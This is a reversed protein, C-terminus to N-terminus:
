KLGWLEYPNTKLEHEYISVVSWIDFFMAKCNGIQAEKILGKEYAMKQITYWAKVPPHGAEMFWQDPPYLKNIEETPAFRDNIDKPTAVEMYHMATLKYIDVGLLLAKGGNHIAYDLGGTLAEKGHKGWGSTSIVDRGTYTDPLKRFTDAILGMATREEDRPLVKIKVTIGMKKDDDTLPLEKSLRLAPMFISGEETVLEKLTDIVTMAGGELEGFSSLSSHVELTMGKTIGLDTLAKKLEEKTVM